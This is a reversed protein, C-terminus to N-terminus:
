VFDEITQVEHCPLEGVWFHGGSKKMTVQYDAGMASKNTEIAETPCHLIRMESFREGVVVVFVKGLRFDRRVQIRYSDGVEEAFLAIVPVQRGRIVGYFDVVDKRQDYEDPLACVVGRLTLLGILVNAAGDLNTNLRDRNAKAVEANVGVSLWAPDVGIIKALQKMKDQRPRGGEFWKRVAEVSVNMERAIHVLRGAHKPPVATAANCAENLRRQFERDIAM